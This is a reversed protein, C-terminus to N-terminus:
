PKKPPGFKKAAARDAVARAALIAAREALKERAKKEGLAHILLDAASEIVAPLVAEWSM